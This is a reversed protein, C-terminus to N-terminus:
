GHFEPGNLFFGKKACNTRESLYPVDLLPGKSILSAVDSTPGKFLPSNWNQDMGQQYTPNPNLDKNVRGSDALWKRETDLVEVSPPVRGKKEFRTLSPDM